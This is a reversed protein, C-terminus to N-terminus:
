FFRYLFFFITALTAHYFLNVPAHKNRETRLLQKQLMPAPSQLLLKKKCDWYGAQYPIDFAAQAHVIAKGYAPYEV